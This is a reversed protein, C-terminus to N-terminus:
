YTAEHSHLFRKAINLFNNRFQGGGEQRKLSPEVRVHKCQKGRQQEGEGGENIEADGFGFALGEFFDGGNELLAAFLWCLGESVGAFQLLELSQAFSSPTSRFFGRM